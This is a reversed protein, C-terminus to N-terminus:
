VPVEERVPEVLETPVFQPYQEKLHELGDSMTPDHELAQTFFELRRKNEDIIDRWRRVFTRVRPKNDETAIDNLQGTERHEDSIRREAVDAMNRVVLIFDYTAAGSQFAPTDLVSNAYDEIQDLQPRNAVIDPAKLEVVLNRVRDHEKRRAALHLDLRGTRGDWRRVTDVKEDPLGALKLHTRLMETLSRESSMLHYEEGFIWLEQELIRHLHDREGVHESDKPHFIMRELGQLFKHRSAILNASRIIASLTTEQLLKTLTNRDEDNLNVVEHLITTLKGPDHEVAHRLLRLTVKAQHTTPSIHAAMAGSIADFVVREARESQTKPEEDPFPYVKQEKWRTINENRRECRREGFYQAIARQTSKWFTAVDDSANEGFHLMTLNQEDLGPWTVYASFHYQREVQKGDLELPFHEAEWGFHLSRHKANKWEIIRLTADPHGQVGTEFTWSKDDKIEPGPNLTQGDYTIELREKEDLLVPAFEVRLKQIISEKELAGLSKQSNNEATFRTGTVEESSAREEWEFVKLSGHGGVIRVLRMQGMADPSTSEWTVRSGLALSRLRGEGRSGHLSRLRNKTKEKRAKWSEGIHRFSSRVEEPSIGHGDDVVHVAAIADTMDRELKVEVHRAEADISNWILEIVARQPDKEHAIRRVHDDGAILEFQEMCDM